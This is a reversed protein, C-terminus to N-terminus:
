RMCKKSASLKSNNQKLKSNKELNKIPCNKMASELAIRDKELDAESKTPITGNQGIAIVSGISHSHSEYGIAISM